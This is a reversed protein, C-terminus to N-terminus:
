PTEQEALWRDVVDKVAVGLLARLHNATGVDAVYVPRGREEWWRAALRRADEPAGEVFPGFAGAEAIRGPLEAPAAGALWSAAVGAEQLVTAVRADALVVPRGGIWRRVAVLHAEWGAHGAADRSLADPSPLRVVPEGHREGWAEGWARADTEIVVTANTAGMDTPLPRPAPTLGIAARAARLAAPLPEGHHCFSACAGCDVCLTLAARALADSVEGRRHRLLVEALRSPVAAERGTGEAVPCASRCLRPCLACRAIVDAM